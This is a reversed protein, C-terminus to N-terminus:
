CEGNGLKSKLPTHLVQTNHGTANLIQSTVGSDRRNVAFYYKGQAAAQLLARPKSNSM